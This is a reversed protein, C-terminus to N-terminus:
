LLGYEAVSEVGSFCFGVWFLIGYGGFVFVLCFFFGLGDAGGWFVLSRLLRSGSFAAGLGAMGGLLVLGMGRGLVLRLINGRTAGLAMRVGIEQTRQAVLFAVVGYLGVVALLLGAAAFFSVLAMEFRPRDALRAVTETLTEVEVPATPDLTAIQMRLWQSVVAPPLNTEMEFTCHRSWSEPHHNSWLEYYEPDDNGTLGANKVDGAVGVVTFV